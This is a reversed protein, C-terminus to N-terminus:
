ERRIEVAGTAEFRGTFEDWETIDKIVPKAVTVSPPGQLSGQAFVPASNALLVSGVMLGFKRPWNPRSLFRAFDM